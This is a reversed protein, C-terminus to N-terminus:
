ARSYKKTVQGTATLMGLDRLYAQASERSSTANGIITNLDKQPQKDTLRAPQRENSRASRSIVGGTGTRAAIKAAVKKTVPNPSTAM